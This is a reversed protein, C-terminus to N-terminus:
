PEIDTRMNDMHDVKSKKKKKKAINKRQAARVFVKLSLSYPVCDEAHSYKLCLGSVSGSM